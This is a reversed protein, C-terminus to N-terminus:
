EVKVIGLLEKYDSIVGYKLNDSSLAAYLKRACSIKIDERGRIDLSGLKGKTEAIFYIYKVDKEDFVIAWDPNYDGVPTPILFGKPLKSYVKVIEEKELNDALKNEIESDYDLHLWWGIGSVCCHLIWAM